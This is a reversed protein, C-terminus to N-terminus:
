SSYAGEEIGLGEQCEEELGWVKGSGDLCQSLPDFVSEAISLSWPSLAKRSKAAESSGTRHESTRFSIMLGEQWEGRVVGSGTLLPGEIMTLVQYERM